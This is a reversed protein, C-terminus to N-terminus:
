ELLLLVWYVGFVVHAFHRCSMAPYFSPLFLRVRGSGSRGAESPGFWVQVPGSRSNEPSLVPNVSKGGARSNEPDLSGSGSRGTESPGFWVQLGVCHSM